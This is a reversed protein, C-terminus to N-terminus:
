AVFLGEARGQPQISGALPHIFRYTPQNLQQHATQLPSRVLWPLYLLCAKGSPRSSVGSYRMLSHGTKRNRASETPVNGFVVFPMQVSDFLAVLFSNVTPTDLEVRTHLRKFNRTRCTPCELEVIPQAAHAGHRLM